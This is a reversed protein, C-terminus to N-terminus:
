PVALQPCLCVVGNCRNMAVGIGQEMWPRTGDICNGFRERVLERGDKSIPSLVGDALDGRPPNAGVGIRLRPYEKTALAQDVSELGYHGGPM